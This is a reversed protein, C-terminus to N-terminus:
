LEIQKNRLINKSMYQYKPFRLSIPVNQYAGTEPLSCPAPGTPRPPSWPSAWRRRGWRRPPSPRWGRRTWRGARRGRSPWWWWSRQSCEGLTLLWNIPLLIDIDIIALCDSGISLLIKIFKFKYNLKLNEFSIKRLNEKQGHQGIIFLLM